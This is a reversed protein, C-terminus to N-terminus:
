SKLEIKHKKIPKAPIGGVTVNDELNDLVVSNAGIVVNNGINISGLIKAGSGIIVNNGIKPRTDKNFSMDAEQAGLTVGQFIICDDGISTAGIVIGSSHAIVLGKGIDCKPTVEIGFLFVNLWTFIYSFPKLLTVKYCLRSMRILIVPLFRPNLLNILNVSHEHSASSNPNNLKKLDHKLTIFINFNKM